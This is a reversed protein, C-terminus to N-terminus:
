RTNFLRWLFYEIFKSEYFLSIEVKIEFSIQYGIVHLLNSLSFSYFKKKIPGCVHRATSAYMYKAKMRLNRSVYLYM